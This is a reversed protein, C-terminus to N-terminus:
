LMGPINSDIRPRPTTPSTLPVNNSFLQKIADRIATKDSLLPHTDMEWVVQVVIFINNLKNTVNENDYKSSSNM